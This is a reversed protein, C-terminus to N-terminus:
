EELEILEGIPNEPFDEKAFYTLMASSFNTENAMLQLKGHNEKDHTDIYIGMSGQTGMNSGSVLAIGSQKGTLRPEVGFGLSAYNFIEPKIQEPFDIFHTGKDLKLYKGGAKVVHMFNLHITDEIRRYTWFGGKAQNDFRDYMITSIDRWGTDRLLFDGSTPVSAIKEDVYERSALNSTDPIETKDAKKEGLQVIAINVNNVDSKNAFEETNPIESKLAYASLDVENDPKDELKQVRESVVNIQSRLDNDDYVTDKDVKNELADIRSSIPTLDVPEAVPRQELKSVRDSLASDDYGQSQIQDITTKINDIQSQLISPDFITDNDTWKEVKESIATIQKRLANLEENAEEKPLSNLVNSVLRHVTERDIKTIDLQNIRAKIAELTQKLETDDYSSGVPRSKLDDLENRFSTELNTVKDSVATIQSTLEKLQPTIDEKPIDKLVERILEQATQADIKSLKISNLEDQIESPDFIESKPLAQIAYEILENVQERDLKAHVEEVLKNFKNSVDDTLHMDLVTQKVTEIDMPKGVTAAILDKLREDSIGNLGLNDVYRKVEKAIDLKKLEVIESKHIDENSKTVAITISHDSPFIYGSASIELEYNGVPLVDLTFTVSSNEIEVIKNWSKGGRVLRITAEGDLQILQGNEDLLQYSFQSATDGQKVQTGGDIQNLNTSNIM